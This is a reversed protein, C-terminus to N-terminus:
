LTPHCDLPCFFSDGRAITQCLDYSFVGCWTAPDNVNEIGYGQYYHITVHDSQWEVYYHGQAFSLTEASTSGIETKKWSNYWKDQGPKRIYIESGGGVTYFWECIVLEYQGDPSAIILDPEYCRSLIRSAIFYQLGAVLIFCIVAVLAVVILIQSKM